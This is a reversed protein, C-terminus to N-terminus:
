WGGAKAERSEGEKAEAVKPAAHAARVSASAHSHLHLKLFKLQKETAGDQIARQLGDEPDDTHMYRQIFAQLDDTTGFGAKQCHTNTRTNQMSAKLEEETFGFALLLEEAKPGQMRRFYEMRQEEAKPGNPDDAEEQEKGESQADIKAQLYKELPELCRIDVVGEQRLQTTAAQYCAGVPSGAKRMRLFKELYPRLKLTDLGPIEGDVVGRLTADVAADGISGAAGM